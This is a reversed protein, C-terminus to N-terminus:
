YQDGKIGDGGREEFAEKAKDFISLNRSFFFDM